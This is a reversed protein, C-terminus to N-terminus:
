VGEICTSRLWAANSCVRAARAERGRLMAVRGTHVHLSAACCPYVGTYGHTWAAVCQRPPAHEAHRGAACHGGAARLVARLVQMLMAAAM